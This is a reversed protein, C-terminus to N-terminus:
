TCWESFNYLDQQIQQHAILEDKYFVTDDAYLKYHAHEFIPKMDNIFLLFLLPGMISGQPVGCTIKQNSSSMGNVLMKQQRNTLYNKIWNITNIKFGYKEIKTILIEHNVSEFAKRLDVFISLVYKNDNLGLLFIMLSIQLLKM